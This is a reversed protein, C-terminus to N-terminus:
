LKRFFVVVKFQLQMKRPVFASSSGQYCLHSANRKVEDMSSTIRFADCRSSTFRFADCRPTIFFVCLISRHVLNSHKGCTCFHSIFSWVPTDLLAPALYLSLTSGEDGDM